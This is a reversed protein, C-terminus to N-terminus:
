LAASVGISGANPDAKRELLYEMVILQGQCAAEQLM